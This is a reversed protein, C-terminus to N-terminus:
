VPSVKGHLSPPRVGKDVLSAPAAVLQSIAHDRARWRSRSLHSTLDDLFRLISAAVDHWALPRGNEIAAGLPLSPVEGGHLLGGVVDVLDDRRSFPVIRGRPACHAAIEDLLASQRAVITRGYALTTLIPFGFGEYFSPFVVLRAGAYLRHIEADSLTGSQLMKIRPTAPQPTGLAVISEYPFATSLLQVTPDVDKHDYENGIVFIFEDQGFPPKVDPHIYDAPNFSLYSILHPVDHATPFRRRFRDRTFESIFVLADAHDAMFQWTGDLHRPAPYAVDWSITDLFLCANFAALTHLDIMEQIHWPQSLRLAATFQRPPLKTVVHWDPFSKELQHFTSAEASALLTIDWESRLTHLGRSTGLAAMTTGNITAGINRADLLLSPQTDYARYLARALRTEAAGAAATGFERAIREVDPAMERLLARDVEPLNRPTMTCPVCPRASSGSRVVARNCVLTRFGCRRAQTMYHWLAGELSRFRDDLEGFDALVIPKVLVCRAPVDAVLYTEPVEALLRRPLEDIAEDGAHDLTALTDDRTGTLRPVAFGVMPDLELAECLIGVAEGTPQVDGFLMLLPCEADAAGAMADCCADLARANRIDWRRSPSVGNGWEGPPMVCTGRRVVHGLCADSDLRGIAIRVDPATTRTCDVFVDIL